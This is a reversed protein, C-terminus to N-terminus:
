ASGSSLARRREDESLYTTAKQLMLASLRGRRHHQAIIWDVVLRPHHRGITKIGWGIGKIADTELEGAVPALFDLVRRAGSEDSGAVRKAWRHVGAGCARRIWRDPDDRWSALKVLAGDLNALLAGGAVREGIIDSACWVQALSIVPARPDVKGPQRGRERPGTGRGGM